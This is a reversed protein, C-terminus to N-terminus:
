GNTLGNVEKNLDNRVLRYVTAALPVGLLMGLVGMVGGGVTVAALVWIAPLGLSSGVVRPYIINGELQQLVVLFILFILAKMPSEMLIIFAGIGGGIYAGAVPILATFAIVAGIMVAYPLKLLLMGVTCLGGLIVAEVCQGVVYKHFCDNLTHLVYRIKAMWTDKLYRKGLRTFQNILKEKGALIYIAFIVSLLATVIGSFVSSVSSILVETASGIGTTVVEVIQNIRERWDIQSLTDLINEPIVGNARGWAVVKRAAAPVEALLLQVCSVLQPVILYIVLAVVAILTVFAAVMCVPRRSKVVANKRSKPFYHKEYVSMLINVLYAVVFGIFLPAAARLAVSLLNAASPWYHVCLYLLFISAVVKLCTQWKLKM